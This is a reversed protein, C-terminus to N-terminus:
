GWFIYVQCLSLSLYYFIDNGSLQPPYYNDQFITMHLDSVFDHTLIKTNGKKSYIHIFHSAINLFSFGQKCLPGVVGLNPPDLNQKM